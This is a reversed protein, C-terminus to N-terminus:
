APFVGRFINAIDCGNIEWCEDMMTRYAAIKFELTGEISVGLYQVKGKLIAKIQTLLTVHVLASSDLIVLMIDTNEMCTQLVANADGSCGIMKLGSTNAEALEPVGKYAADSGIFLGKM